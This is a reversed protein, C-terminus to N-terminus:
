SSCPGPSRSDFSRRARSRGTRTFSCSRWSPSRKLPRTVFTEDLLNTAHPVKLAVEHGESVHRALYTFAALGRGLVGLVEYDGVRMWSELV